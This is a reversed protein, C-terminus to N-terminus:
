HTIALLFPYVLMVPYIQVLSREPINTGAKFVAGCFGKAQQLKRSKSGTRCPPINQAISIEGQSEQAHQHFIGQGSGPERSQKHETPCPM